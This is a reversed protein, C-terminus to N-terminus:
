PRANRLAMVTGDRGWLAKWAFALRWLGPSEKFDRLLTGSDRLIRLPESFHQRTYDSNWAFGQVWAKAHGPAPPTDYGYIEPFLYRRLKRIDGSLASADPKSALDSVVAQIRDWRHSFEELGKDDRVYTDFYRISASDPSDLQPAKEIELAWGSPAPKLSATGDLLFSAQTWGNAWNSFWSLKLLAVQWGEGDRRAEGEITAGQLLPGAIRLTSAGDKPPGIQLVLGPKAEDSQDIFKESPRPETACAALLLLELGVLAIGCKVM